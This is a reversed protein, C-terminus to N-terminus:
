IESPRRVTSSHHMHLPARTIEYALASPRMSRAAAHRALNSRCTRRARTQTSFPRRHSRGCSTGSGRLAGAPRRRWRWAVGKLGDCGHYRTRPRGPPPWPLSGREHEQSRVKCYGPQLARCQQVHKCALQSLQRMRAERAHPWTARGHLAGHMDTTCHALKCKQTILSNLESQALAASAQAPGCAHARKVGTSAAPAAGPRGLLPSASSKCAATFGLLPLRAFTFRHRPENLKKM